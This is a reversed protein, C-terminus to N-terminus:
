RFEEFSRAFQRKPRRRTGFVRFGHGSSEVNFSEKLAERSLRVNRNIVIRGAEFEFLEDHFVWLVKPILNLPLRDSGKM